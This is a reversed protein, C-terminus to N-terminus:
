AEGAPTPKAHMSRGKRIVDISVTMGHPRNTHSAHSKAFIEVRLIPGKGGLPFTYKLIHCDKYGLYRAHEIAVQLAKSGIDPWDEWHNIERPM